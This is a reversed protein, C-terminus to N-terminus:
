TSVNAAPWNAHEKHAAQGGARGGARGAQWPAKEIALQCAFDFETITLARALPRAPRADDSGTLAAGRRAAGLEDINMRLDGSAPTVGLLQHCKPALNVDGDM